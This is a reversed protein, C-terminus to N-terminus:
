SVGGYESTSGHTNKEIFSDLDAQRYAVRRGIKVFAPGHGTLRWVALTQRAVKLYAAAAATTLLNSM